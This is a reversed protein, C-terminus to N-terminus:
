ECIFPELHVLGGVERRQEDLREVLLDLGVGTEGGQAIRLRARQDAAIDLPELRQRDRDLVRDEVLARGLLPARMRSGAEGALEPQPLVLDRQGAEASRDRPAGRTRELYAGLQEVAADLAQLADTGDVAAQDPALEGRDVADHARQGALHARRVGIATAVVLADV